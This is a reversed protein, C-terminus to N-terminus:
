ELAIVENLKQGFGFYGIRSVVLSSPVMRNHSTVSKELSTERKKNWGDKLKETEKGRTNPNTKEISLSFIQNKIDEKKRERERERERERINSIYGTTRIVFSYIRQWVHLVPPV